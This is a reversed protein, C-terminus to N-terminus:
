QSPSISKKVIWLSSIIFLVRMCIQIIKAKPIFEVLPPITMVQHNLSSTLGLLVFKDPILLIYGFYAACFIAFAVLCSKSVKSVHWVVFPLSWVIWQPHFNISLLIALSVLLYASWITITKRKVYIFGLVAIYAIFFVPISGLKLEFLKASLSSQFVSQRVANSNIFPLLPIAWAIFGAVSLRIINKLQPMLFIALAPFFLIPYTKFAAALGLSLGSNIYKNKQLFFISAVSLGAPIIDFQGIAYVAYLSLPNFLWLINIRQKQKPNKAQLMLLKFILIDFVFYPIKLVLVYALINSNTDQSSSWDFIWSVLEPGVIHKAVIQWGGLFFYTIPPYNFTDQYPLSSRNENLFEYINIVKNQLFSAHFHQSKIDPHYLLGFALRVILACILLTKTPM